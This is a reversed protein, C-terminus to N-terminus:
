QTELMLVADDIYMRTMGDRTGVYVPIFFDAYAADIYM